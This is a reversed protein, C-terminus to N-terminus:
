DYEAYDEFQHEYAVLTLDITPSVAKEDEEAVAYLNSDFSPKETSSTHSIFRRNKYMKYILSFIILSAISATGLIVTVIIINRTKSDIPSTTTTTSSSLSSSLTTSSTAASTTSTTGASTTSTTPTATTSTTSALTTSTTSTSTITTTPTPTPTPTPDICTHNVIPIFQYGYILFYKCEECGCYINNLKTSKESLNVDSNNGIVPFMNSQGGVADQLSVSSNIIILIHDVQIPFLSSYTIKLSSEEAFFLCHVSVNPNLRNVLYNKIGFTKGSSNKMTISSNELQYGLYSKRQYNLPSSVNKFYIRSFLDRETTQPFQSIFLFTSMITNSFNSHGIFDLSSNILFMFPNEFFNCNEITSEASYVFSGKEIYIFPIAELVSDFLSLNFTISGGMVYIPSIFDTLSNPALITPPKLNFVKTYTFGIRLSQYNYIFAISRPSIINCSEFYIFSSQKESNDSIQNTVSVIPRDWNTFNIYQFFFWRSCSQTQNNEEEPEYTLFPQTSSSGDIITYNNNENNINESTIWLAGCYNGLTIQESTVNINGIIGICVRSNNSILLFARSVADKLSTCIPENNFGCGESSNYVTLINYNLLITSNPCLPASVVFVIKLFIAFLISFNNSKRIM